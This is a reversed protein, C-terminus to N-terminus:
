TQFIRITGNQYYPVIPKSDVAACIPLDSAFGISSLHKGWHSNAIMDTINDAYHTYVLEGMLASDTCSLKEHLRTRLGAIIMGGCAVDALAFRNEDGACIIRLDEDIAAIQEIITTMNCFAATFVSGGPRSKEMAISGNTTTLIIAKDLVMDSTYEQPSNGLDFGQLKKGEREGCLLTTEEFLNSSLQLAREISEVPIIEKSGNSLAHCIVTTARLVDIVVVTKKRIDKETVGAPTVFLDINM